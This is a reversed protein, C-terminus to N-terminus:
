LIGFGFGYGNGNRAGRHITVAPAKWSQISGSRIHPANRADADDLRQGFWFYSRMARQCLRVQGTRM